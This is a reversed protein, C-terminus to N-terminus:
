FWWFQLCLLIFAALILLQEVQWNAISFDESSRHKVTNQICNDLETTPIKTNFAYPYMNENINRNM